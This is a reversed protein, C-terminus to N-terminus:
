IASKCEPPIDFISPDDIKPVFDTITAANVLALKQFFAHGALPVCLGDRSVTAYNVTDDVTILWTDGIIQKDGYGFTYSHVYIATDPICKIPKIPMASKQCRRSDQDIVYMQGDNVSEIIWLNSKHLDPLTFSVGKMGTMARDSDYSYNYYAYSSYTKGEPLAMATSTSLQASFQKPVCCREPETLEHTLSTTPKGNLGVICIAIAILITYYSM